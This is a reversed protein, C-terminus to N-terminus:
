DDKNDAVWLLHAALNVKDFEGDQFAEDEDPAWNGCNPCVESEPPWNAFCSSCFSEERELEAVISEAKDRYECQVNCYGNQLAWKGRVEDCGDYSCAHMEPPPVQDIGGTSHVEFHCEECLTILNDLSHGGGDSIRKQHHAHLGRKGNGDEPPQYNCNQCSYGDRKFVRARRKQWDAPYNSHRM